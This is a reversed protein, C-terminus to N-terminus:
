KTTITKSASWSSYYNTSGVTKYTRIRVYYKKKDSLGTIKKSVTSSSTIKITKASSFSSNTSYQIQYGTVQTTKKTWKATFANDAATLSTIVTPTPLIKYSASKTGSYPAKFTVKVTYMGPNVMGSPYTVTYYSTPVVNGANDKVTVTPKQAKGNYTYSTASLAMVNPYPLINFTATMPPTTKSTKGDASSYNIFPARYTVKVTYKGPNIMGSPYTIVYYKNDIVKGNNDKVVVTPKRMTKGDSIYQTTSLTMSAPKSYMKTYSCMDVACYEIISKTDVSEKYSIMHNHQSVYLSHSVISPMKEKSPNDVTTICNIYYTKGKELLPCVSVVCNNGVNSIDSILSKNATIDSTSAYVSITLKRNNNATSNRFEYYNNTPATFKFWKSSDVILKNKRNVGRSMSYSIATPANDIEVATAYTNSHSVVEYAYVMFPMLIISLILLIALIKKTNKNM